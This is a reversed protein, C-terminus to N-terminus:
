FYKITRTETYEETEPAKGPRMTKQVVRRSVWNGMDDNVIDYYDFEFVPIEGGDKNKKNSKRGILCGSEDYVNIFNVDVSKGMTAVLSITDVQNKENYGIKLSIGRKGFQSGFGIPYGAQNYTMLANNIKGEDTFKIKKQHPIPNKTKLRIEKVPGTSEYLEPGHFPTAAVISQSGFIYLSFSILTVLTLIINQRM